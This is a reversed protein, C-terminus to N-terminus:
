GDQLEKLKEKARDGNAMAGTLFYRLERMARRRIVKELLADPMERETGTLNDIDSLIRQTYQDDYQEFFQTVEPHNAVTKIREGRQEIDQWREVQSKRKRM